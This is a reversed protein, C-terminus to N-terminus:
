LGCARSYIGAINQIHELVLERPHNELSGEMVQYFENPLFQSLLSLPIPKKTLNEFLKGTASNVDGNTWYYRSRDSFSYKRKYSQQAESGSYYAKWFGPEQCMVRDLTDRLNSLNSDGKNMLEIEIAELAYLAERCAFTLWPGVKLICFHDEVLAKLSSENQYDTSHAEFVLHQYGTIANSLNKARDRNYQFVRDDGFEVGPQVVVGIVREWADSLGAEAFSQKTIEITQELEEPRTPHITHEEDQAGGPLPVESGIIYLPQPLNERHEKWVTEAALCLSVARAAVTEDRLPKKRDGQDDACYMSTDLHIKQFGAKVYEEILIRSHNMAEPSPLNRWQYPGLHDGGLMIRDGPFEVRAAISTVFNVFDAPKMGTYGGFQNVQNTTSEVLLFSDDKKAQRMCAELVYHNASCVSYIGKTGNERNRALIDLFRQRTNKM